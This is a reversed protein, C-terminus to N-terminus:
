LGYRSPMPAYPPPSLLALGDLPSLGKPYFPAAASPPVQGLDSSSYAPKLRALCMLAFEEYRRAASFAIGKVVVDIALSDPLGVVHLNRLIPSGFGHHPLHILGQTAIQAALAAGEELPHYQCIHHLVPAALVREPM